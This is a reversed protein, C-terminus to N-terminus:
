QCTNLLVGVTSTGYHSTAVDLRGDANLDGVAVGLTEPGTAYLRPHEFSGDGRGVYLGVSASSSDPAALDLVGNGDFDGLALAYAMGAKSYTVQPLFGGQGDQLLIGLSSPEENSVALDLWGDGNFDGAAIARSRAGTPILPQPSLGGWGDNRLLIIGGGQPTSGFDTVALDVDGDRDFDGRAVLAPQSGVPYTEYRPFTGPGDNFLIAVSATNFDPVVLELDGDGDLDAPLATTISTATHLTQPTFTGTGQNFLATVTSSGATGNGHNAVVLDLDGDADLDGGEVSVPTVGTTYDVRTGFTGGGQNPMVSVTGATYNAVMLDRLGDGDLDGTSLM